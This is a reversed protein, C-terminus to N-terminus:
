VLLSIPSFSFTKTCSLGPRNACVARPNEMETASAEPRTLTPPACPPSAHTEYTGHLTAIRKVDKITRVIHLVTILNSIHFYFM